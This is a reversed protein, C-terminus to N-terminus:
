FWMICSQMRQLVTGGIYDYWVCVCKKTEFGTLVCGLMDFYVNIM